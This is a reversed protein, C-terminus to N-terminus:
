AKAPHAGNKRLTQHYESRPDRVLVAESAWRCRVAVLGCARLFFPAWGARAGLM